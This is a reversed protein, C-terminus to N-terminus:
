EFSTIANNQADYWGKQTSTNLMNVGQPNLAQVYITIRYQHDSYSVLEQSASENVTLKIPLTVEANNTIIGSNTYNYYYIGDGDTFSKSAAPNSDDQQSMVVIDNEVYEGNILIEFKAKLRIYCSNRGINKVKLDYFISQGPMLSGSPMVVPSLIETNTGYEYVKCQIKVNGTAVISPNMNKTNSFYANTITVINFTLLLAILVCLIAFVIKNVIEKKRIKALSLDKDEM